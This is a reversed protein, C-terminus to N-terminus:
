KNIVLRLISNAPENDFRYFGGILLIAPKGDETQTDIADALWGGFIGTSNYGVALEGTKELIMFGNRTIGGYTKFNGTVVILGGNLQRADSLGGGDVKKPVFTPDPTGDENLMAIYTNSKGNYTRFGGTILYKKTIANYTATYINFDAGTGGPNFSPDISGDANLRTIYGASINDFKTFSGYVLLKGSLNGEKHLLSGMSGNGGPLGTKTAANYRYTKDLSGDGNLRALQRIETSDLIVTDRTEYKNPKDYRRSVYYRFSGTVLIKGGQEYLGGIGGDFGGNFKPFYKITDTQTPRRFTKIGITDISGNSNLMTLNSINETRQDYGSFYGGIIFKGQFPIIGTLLGNAAKGTRFSADYSGDKFTRVIRNIPKLVGRNDYNNFAGVLIVKGDDTVIRQFIANNAGSIARFTPDISLYGNVKFIPGFVVKDGVSVSIVGSSANNPVVLKLDATTVSKVVAQEGNIRVIMQDKYPLLGTVKITVETGPLGFEPVPVQATNIVVGLPSKGEGYPESFDEKTKSCGALLMTCAAFVVAIIMKRMVKGQKIM